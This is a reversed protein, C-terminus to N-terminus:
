PVPLTSATVKGHDSSGEAAGEVGFSGEAPHIVVATKQKSIIARERAKFCVEQVDSLAKRMGEKQVAKIINPLGMAAVLGIIAIVVMIEILTFGASIKQRRAFLM